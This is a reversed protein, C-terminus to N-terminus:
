LTAEYEERFQKVVKVTWTASTKEQLRSALELDTMKTDPAVEALDCLAIWRVRARDEQINSM